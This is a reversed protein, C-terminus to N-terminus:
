SLAEEKPVSRGDIEIIQESAPVQTAREQEEQDKARDYLTKAVLAGGVLLAGPISRTAVRAALMGLGMGLFGNGDGHKRAEMGVGATIINRILSM